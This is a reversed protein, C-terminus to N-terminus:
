TVLTRSHQNSGTIILFKSDQKIITSNTCLPYNENLHGLSCQTKDGKGIKIKFEENIEIWILHDEIEFLRCKEIIEQKLEAEPLTWDIEQESICKRIKYNLIDADVQRYDYESGFFMSTALVVGLTIIILMTMFPLLMLMSDAQAKKGLQLSPTGSALRSGIYTSTNKGVTWCGSRGGRNSDRKRGLIPKTKTNM